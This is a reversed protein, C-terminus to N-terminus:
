SINGNSSPISLNCAGNCITAINTTLFNSQSYAGWPQMQVQLVSNAYIPVLPTYTFNYTVNNGVVNSTSSISCGM